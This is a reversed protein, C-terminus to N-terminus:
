NRNSLKETIKLLEDPSIPKMLVEDNGFDVNGEIAEVHGTLMVVNLGENKEKLMRSLQSGPVDPLKYDLIALEYQKQSTKLMAENGSCAIDVDFGSDELLMQFTSALFEDDDVILVSLSEQKPTTAELYDQYLSDGFEPHGELTNIISEVRTVLMDLKKEHDSIVNIILDLIDLKDPSSMTPCRLQTISVTCSYPIQIKLNCKSIINQFVYKMDYEIYRFDLKYM